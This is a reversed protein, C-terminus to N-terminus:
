EWVGAWGPDRSPKRCAAVAQFSTLIWPTQCSRRPQEEYPRFTVNAGAPASLSLRSTASDALRVPVSIPYAPRGHRASEAYGSGSTKNTLGPIQRVFDVGARGSLGIRARRRSVPESHPESSTTPATGCVALMGIAVLRWLEWSSFEVECEGSSLWRLLLHREARDVGCATRAGNGCRVASIERSGCSPQNCPTILPVALDPDERGALHAVPRPREPALFGSAGHHWAIRISYKAVRPRTRAHRPCRPRGNGAPSAVLAM